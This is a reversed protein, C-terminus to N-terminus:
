HSDRSLGKVGLALAGHGGEYGFGGEYVGKSLLSLNRPVGEFHSRDYLYKKTARRFESLNDTEQIEGAERTTGSM